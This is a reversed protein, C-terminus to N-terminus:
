RSLSNSYGMQQVAHTPLMPTKFFNTQQSYESEQGNRCNFPRWAECPGCNFEMSSYGGESGM